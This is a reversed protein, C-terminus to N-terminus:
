KTTILTVGDNQYPAPTTDVGIFQDIAGTEILKRMTALLEGKRTTDLRGLEDIMALRIPSDAALAASIAAYAVAQETGSFVTLPVWTAFEYWGFEGDRYEIPKRLVPEAIANVTHLLARISKEVIESQADELVKLVATLAEVEARAKAASEIVKAEAKRREAMQVSARYIREWDGLPKLVADRQQYLKSREKELRDIQSDLDPPIAELQAQLEAVNQRAAMVRKSLEMRQQQKRDRETLAAAVEAVAKRDKEIQKKIRAQKGNLGEIKEEIASCQETLEKLRKSRWQDGPTGCLPCTDTSELQEILKKCEALKEKEAAAATEAKILEAEHKRLEENAQRLSDPSVKPEADAELQELQKALQDADELEAKRRGIQDRKAQLKLAANFESEVRGIEAEISSRKLNLAKCEREANRAAEEDPEDAASVVVLGQVTKAMRDAHAKAQKLRERLGTIQGGLWNQLSEGVEHRARDSEDLQTVVERIIAEHDATHNEVKANKVASLIEDVNVEAPCHAFVYRVREKDGLEFFTKPDLLVTPVIAQDGGERSWKGGTFRWSREITQGGTEGALEIRVDIRNGRALQGTAPNTKGLEPVYGLLGLRIAELRASKGTANPGTIVTVPGYEDDFQPVKLGTATVRKIRM